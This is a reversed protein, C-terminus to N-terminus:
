HQGHHHHQAGPKDYGRLRDYTEVQETTLAQKMELHARLHALRLKGTLAGITETLASLEEEGVGGAAFLRDLEREREVLEKGLGVAREHMRDYIAQTEAIKEDDLQLEQTLELVHKPGPYSNLEAPKAFGMGHGELYGMVQDHSLAKIPRHEMGAYPSQQAAAVAPIWAALLLSVVRMSDKM